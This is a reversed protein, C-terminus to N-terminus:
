GVGGFGLHYNMAHKGIDNVTIGGAAVHKIFYEKEKGEADGFFYAALPKAGKAKICKVACEVGACEYVSL